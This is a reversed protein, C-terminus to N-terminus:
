PNTSKNIIKAPSSSSEITEFEGHAFEWGYQVQWRRSDVAQLDVEVFTRPLTPSMNLPCVPAALPIGAPHFRLLLTLETQVAYGEKTAPFFSWLMVQSTIQARTADSVKDAQKVEVVTVRGRDDITIALLLEDPLKDSDAQVEFNQPTKLLIPDTVSTHGGVFNSGDTFEAGVLTVAARTPRIRTSILNTGQLTFVEGPKVPHNLVTKIYSHILLMDEPADGAAAYYPIAFIPKGYSDMYSVLVILRTITKHTENELQVWRWVGFAGLSTQNSIVKLPADKETEFPIDSPACPGLNYPSQANLESPCVAFFLCLAVIRTTTTM